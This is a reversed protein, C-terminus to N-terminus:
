FYSHKCLKLIISLYNYSYIRIIDSFVFYSTIEAYGVVCINETEDISEPSVSKKHAAHYKGTICGLGTCICKDFLKFRQSKLNVSM